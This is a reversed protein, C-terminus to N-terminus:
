FHGQAVRKFVVNFPEDLLWASYLSLSKAYDSHGACQSEIQEFQAVSIEPLTAVKNKNIFSTMEKMEMVHYEPTYTEHNCFNTYSIIEGHSKRLPALSDFFKSVMEFKQKFTNM